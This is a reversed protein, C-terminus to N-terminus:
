MRTPCLWCEQAVITPTKLPEGEWLEVDIFTHIGFAHKIGM